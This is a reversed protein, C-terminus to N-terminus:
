FPWFLWFLFKGLCLVAMRHNLAITGLKHGLNLCIQHTSEFFFDLFRIKQSVLACHQPREAAALNFFVCLFLPPWDWLKLLLLLLLLLIIFSFPSIQPVGWRPAFSFKRACLVSALDILAIIDLMQSFIMLIQHATEFIYAWFAMKWGFLPNKPGFVGRPPLRSNKEFIRKSCKKLSM